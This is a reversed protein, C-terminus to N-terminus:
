AARLIDHLTRLHSKWAPWDVTDPEHSVCVLLLDPPCAVSTVRAQAHMMVQARLDGLNQFTGTHRQTLRWYDTAAEAMAVTDPRGASCWTMGAQVDVLSCGVLGQLVAITQVQLQIAARNV